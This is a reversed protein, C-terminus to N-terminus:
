ESQSLESIRSRRDRFAELRLGYGQQSTLIEELSQQFSIGDNSIAEGIGTSAGVRCEVGFKAKFAKVMMDDLEDELGHHVIFSDHVPLCAYQMRAFQLMVVEALDSDFRQLRLGIGSGFNSKFEPYQSAVFLRFEPWNRGTTEASYDDIEKIKTTSDANLLANFTRKVLSREKKDGKKSLCREYPDNPIAMGKQAYLMAAHLGSYDVEVTRKGDILIYQRLKSPCSIWWAGYFRGGQEWDDNNFIRYVTRAAFDFSQSAEDDRKGAILKLEDAIQDDTLALDAWHNELMKNIIRLRDRAANAFAVEGYEVPKKECDKLRIGEANRNRRLDAVSAGTHALGELLAQTAQYRTVRSNQGAPDDWHPTSVNMLEADRLAKLAAIFTRASIFSAGYRSKSSKQITTQGSAIGVELSPDSEYARFLDLVIARVSAEFLPQAESRM